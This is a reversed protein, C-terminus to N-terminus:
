AHPPRVAARDARFAAPVDSRGLIADATIRGSAPGLSIGYPGHGAAIHLGEIGPAAPRRGDGAPCLGARRDGLGVTPRL